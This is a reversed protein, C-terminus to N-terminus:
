VNKELTEEINIHISRRESDSAELTKKNTYLENLAKYHKEVEKYSKIKEQVEELNNTILARITKLADTEDVIVKTFDYKKGREPIQFPSGNAPVNFEDNVRIETGDLEVKKVRIATTTLASFGEGLDNAEKIIYVSDECCLQKGIKKM